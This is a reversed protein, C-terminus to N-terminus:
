YYHYTSLDLNRSTLLQSLETTNEVLLKGFESIKEKNLRYSPIAITISGIITTDLFIPAAIAVVDATYLEVSYCWGNEKVQQIGRKTEKIVEEKSLTLGPLTHQLIDEINKEGLFALIAWYSAGEFLQSENNLSVDFTVRNTPKVADINTATTSNLKVLYTAEGTQIMIRKLIPQILKSVNLNDFARNGMNILQPGLTYQKTQELKKLYDNNTFTELIRYANVQPISLEEAVERATWFRQETSFLDLVNLAHTLTKLM